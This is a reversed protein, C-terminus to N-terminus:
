KLRCQRAGSCLRKKPSAKKSAKAQKKKEKQRQKLMAKQESEDLVALMMAESVQEYQQNLKTIEIHGRDSTDRM